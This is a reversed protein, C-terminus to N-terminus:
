GGRSRRTVWAFRIQKLYDIWDKQLKIQNGIFAVDSSHVNFLKKFIWVGLAYVPIRCEPCFAETACPMIVVGCCMGACFIDADMERKFEQIAIQEEQRAILEDFDDFFISYLSLLGAPDEVFNQQAFSIQEENLQMGGLTFVFLFTFKSLIDM